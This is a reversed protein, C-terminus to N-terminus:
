KDSGKDESVVPADPWLAVINTPTWSLVIDKIAENFTDLAVNAEKPLEGDAEEPLDDYWYDVEVPRMKNPECLVPLLADFSCGEDEMFEVLDDEDFFYRDFRESYIPVEGGWENRKRAVYREAKEKERCEVCHTYLKETLKGCESCPVHTCGAYRAVDEADKGDGFFRGDSSVWGTVTVLRAAEPSDKAIIKTDNM